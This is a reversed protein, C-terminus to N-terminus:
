ARNELRSQRLRDAPGALYSMEAALLGMEEAMSVCEIGIEQSVKRLAHEISMGSEACILLLDLTNPFARELEIRGSSPRTAVPLARASQHRCLQGRDCRRDQGHGAQNWQPDRVSLDRRCSLRSRPRLAFSCFPTNRERAAFAPWRSNCRPRKPASGARSISPKSWDSSSGSPKVRPHNQKPGSCGSASASSPDERTRLEGGQHPAVSIDPRCCPCRRCDPGDGRSGIAAFLVALFHADSFKALLEDLM